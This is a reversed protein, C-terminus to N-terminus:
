TLTPNGKWVRRTSEQPFLNFKAIFQGNITIESVLHLIEAPLCDNPTAVEVTTDLPFSFGIYVGDSPVNFGWGQPNYGEHKPLCNYPLKAESSRPLGM